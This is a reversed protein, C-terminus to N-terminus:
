RVARNSINVLAGDLRQISKARLDNHDSKKVIGVNKHLNGKSLAPKKMVQNSQKNVTEQNVNEKNSVKINNTNSSKLTSTSSLAPPLQVPNFDEDNTPTQPTMFPTSSTTTSCSINSNDNHQALANQLPSPSVYGKMTTPNLSNKRKPTRLTNSTSPLDRQRNIMLKPTTSQTLKTMPKSNDLDLNLIDIADLGFVDDDLVLQIGDDAVINLAEQRTMIQPPLLNSLRPPSPPLDELEYEKMNSHLNNPDYPQIPSPLVFVKKILDDDEDFLSNNVMVDDDTCDLIDIINHRTNSLVVISEKKNSHKDLQLNLPTLEMFKNLDAFPQLSERTIPNRKVTPSRPDFFIEDIDDQPQSKPKVPANQSLQDLDINLQPTIFMNAILDRKLQENHPTVPTTGNPRSNTANGNQKINQLLIDNITNKQIVNLNRNIAATSDKNHQLDVVIPGSNVIHFDGNTNMPYSTVMINSDLTEAAQFLQKLNEKSSQVKEKFSKGKKLSNKSSSQKNGM